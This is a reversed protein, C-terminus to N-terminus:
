GPQASRDVARKRLEDERYQRLGMPAWGIFFRQDGTLGGIVPAHKGELSLQYARYATAVGALDAINESMTLEANIHM